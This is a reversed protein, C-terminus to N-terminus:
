LQDPHGLATKIEGYGVQQFSFLKSLTDKVELNTLVFSEEKIHFIM